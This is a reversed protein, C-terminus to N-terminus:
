DEGDRLPNHAADKFKKRNRPWFVYGLVAIFLIFLYLLGWTEAIHAADAYDM